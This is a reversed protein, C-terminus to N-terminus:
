SSAIMEQGRFSSLSERGLGGLSPLQLHESAALDGPGAAPASLEGLAEKSTKSSALCGGDELCGGVSIQFSDKGKVTKKYSIRNYSSIIELCVKSLM